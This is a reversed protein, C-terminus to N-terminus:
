EVAYLSVVFIVIHAISLNLGVTGVSSFILVRIEPDTCFKRVTRAREEFSIEGDIYVHKIGYLNLVQYFPLTLEDMLSFSLTSVNRLLPGLSPFEQYILIKTDQKPHDRLARPIKPFIVKGDRVQIEPADDHKLLHSVLKACVDFKTSKAKDWDDMTRFKPIPDKRSKRPFCVGQRYELYFSHSVIGLISNSNSVSAPILEVEHFNIFIPV